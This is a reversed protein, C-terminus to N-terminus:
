GLARSGKGFGFHPSHSRPLAIEQKGGSVSTAACQRDRSKTHAAQERQRAMMLVEGRRVIGGATYMAVM